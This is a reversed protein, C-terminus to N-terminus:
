HAPTSDRGGHSLCGSRKQDGEKRQGAMRKGVDLQGADDAIVHQELAVHGHADEALGQRALGDRDGIAAPGSLRHGIRQASPFQPQLRERGPGGGLHGDGAGVRDGNGVDEDAVHPDARALRVHLPRDPLRVVRVCLDRRRLKRLDPQEVDRPLRCRNGDLVDVGPPNDARRFRDGLEGRDHIVEAPLHVLVELHRHPQDM